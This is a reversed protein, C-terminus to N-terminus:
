IIQRALTILVQVEMEFTTSDEYYDTILIQLALKNKNNEDGAKLILFEFLGTQSFADPSAQGRESLTYSLRNSTPTGDSDGVQWDSCRITFETQM